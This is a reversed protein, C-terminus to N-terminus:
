NCCAGVKISRSTFFEIRGPQNLQLLSRDSSIAKMRTLIMKKGQPSCDDLMLKSVAKVLVSRFASTKDQRAANDAFVMLLMQRRAVGADNRDFLEDARCSSLSRFILCSRWHMQGSSTPHLMEPMLCNRWHMQGSPTPHLLGPLWIIEGTCEIAEADPAAGDIVDSLRWHMQHCWCWICGQSNWWILWWCGLWACRRRRLLHDNWRRLLHDNWRRLLRDNRVVM